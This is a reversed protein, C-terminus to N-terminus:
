NRKLKEIVHEVNELAVEYDHIYDKSFGEKKLSKIERKLLQAKNMLDEM